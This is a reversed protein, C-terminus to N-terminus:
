DVRRQWLERAADVTLEARYAAALAALWPVVQWTLAFFFESVRLGAVALQPPAM